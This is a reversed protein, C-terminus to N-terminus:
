YEENRITTYYRIRSCLLLTIIMGIMMLLAFGFGVGVFIWIQENFWAQLKEHCGEFNVATRFATSTYRYTICMPDIPKPAWARGSQAQKCCSPPVFSRTGRLSNTVYWFSNQYDTASQGGCCEHYFQITDMLPLVWKDRSYRNYTLNKLYVEMADNNSFKDRYVLALTGIAIDALFLLVLSIIFLALFFRMRKVAGCCGVFGILLTCCGSVLAIYAAFTLLPDDESFDVLDLIYNRKPDFLMWLGLFILSLGSTWFLLTYVVLTIRLCNGGTRETSM